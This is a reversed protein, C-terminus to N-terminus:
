VAAKIHKILDDKNLTSFGTLGHERAIAQLQPRTKGKLNHTKKSRSGKKLTVYDDSDSDSDSGSDSDSEDDYYPGEPRKKTAKFGSLALALGKLDEKEEKAKEEKQIEEIKRAAEEQWTGTEAPEDKNVRKFKETKPASYKGERYEYYVKNDKIGEVEVEVTGDSLTLKYVGPKFKDNTTDLGPPFEDLNEFNSGKKFLPTFKEESKESEESSEDSSEDSSDGDQKVWRWQYDGNSVKVRSSLYSGGKGTRVKGQCDSALYPPVKRTPSHQLRKCKAM